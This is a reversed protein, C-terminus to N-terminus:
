LLGEDLDETELIDSKRAMPGVFGRAENQQLLEDLMRQKFALENESM